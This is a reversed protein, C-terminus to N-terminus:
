ALMSRWLQHSTLRVVSVKRPRNYPFKAPYDRAILASGTTNDNQLSTMDYGAAAELEPFTTLETFCTRCTYLILTLMLM